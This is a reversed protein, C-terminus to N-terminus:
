ITRRWNMVKLSMRSNGPLLVRILFGLIEQMPIVVQPVERSGSKRSIRPFERGGM